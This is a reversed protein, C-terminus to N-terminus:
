GLLPMKDPHCTKYNCTLVSDIVNDMVVGIYGADYVGGHGCYGQARWHYPNYGV